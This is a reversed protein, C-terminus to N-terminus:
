FHGGQYKTEYDVFVHKKGADGALQKQTYVKTDQFMSKYYAVRRKVWEQNSWLSESKSPDKKKVFAVPIKSSQWNTGKLAEKSFPLVYADRMFHSDDYAAIYLGPALDIKATQM